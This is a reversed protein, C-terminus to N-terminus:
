CYFPFRKGQNSAIAASTHSGINEPKKARSRSSDTAATQQMPDGTNEGTPVCCHRDCWLLVKMRGRTSFSM